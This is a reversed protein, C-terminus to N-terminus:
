STAPLGSMFPTRGRCRHKRAPAAAPRAAPSRARASRRTTPAPAAWALAVLVLAARYEEGQFTGNMAGMFMLASGTLLALLTMFSAPVRKM